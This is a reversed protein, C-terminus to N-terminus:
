EFQTVGSNTIPGTQVGGATTTFITLTYQLSTNSHSSTTWTATPFDFTATYSSDHVLNGSNITSTLAQNQFDVITLSMDLIADIPLAQGTNVDIEPGITIVVQRDKTKPKEVVIDDGLNPFLSLSLCCLIFLFFTAQKAITILM